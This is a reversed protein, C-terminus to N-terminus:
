NVTKIHFGTMPELSRLMIYPSANACSFMRGFVGARFPGIKAVM